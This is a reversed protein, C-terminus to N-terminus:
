QAWARSSAGRPARARAPRMQSGPVCLLMPLVVSQAGNWCPSASWLGLPHPVSSHVRSLACLACGERRLVRVGGPVPCESQAAYPYSAATAQGGNDAVWQMAAGSDGSNCGTGPGGAPANSCDMLQQESLKTLTNTAIANISEITATAAFAWCSGCDGQNQVPSVVNPSARWDVGATARVAKSASRPKTAVKKNRPGNVYTLKPPLLGTRLTRKAGPPPPSKAGPPSQAPAGDCKGYAKQCGAGCYASGVGCYGYQSCPCWCPPGNLWM